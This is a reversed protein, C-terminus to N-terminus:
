TMGTPLEAQLALFNAPNQIRCYDAISGSHVKSGHFTPRKWAVEAVRAFCPIKLFLSM